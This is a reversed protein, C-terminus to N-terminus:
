EIHLTPDRALRSVLAAAASGKGEEDQVGRSSSRWTEVADLARQGIGCTRMMGSVRGGVDRLRQRTPCREM